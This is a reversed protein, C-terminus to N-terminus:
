AEEEGGFPLEDLSGSAMHTLEPVLEPVLFGEPDRALFGVSHGAPRDLDWWEPVPMEWVAFHLHIGTAAGTEGMTGIRDGRNVTDGVSWDRHPDDALHMYFLWWPYAHQVVLANGNNESAGDGPVDIRVVKGGDPGASTVALGRQRAVEPM